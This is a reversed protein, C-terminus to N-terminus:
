RDQEDDSYRDIEEEEKRYEEWSQYDQSQKYINELVKYKISILEEKKHKYDEEDIDFAETKLTGYLNVIMELLIIREANDKADQLLQLNRNLKNKLMRERKEDESKEFREMWNEEM